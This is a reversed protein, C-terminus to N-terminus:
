PKRALGGNAGVEHFGPRLISGPEPRWESLVLVGPPVLELGEFVVHAFDSTDRQMVDVSDYAKALGEVVGPQAYEATGHSAVLYSGSPLAAMLTRIVRRVDEDGVIFHLVATMILAVPRSFDITELVAPATLIKEPERLDAQIYACRGEPSSTLLARAHALVLPDNDVYVVRAAPSVRQAVQHTNDATPLGSAIDLFQSVGAEGALYQVARGIFARNERAAIRLEPWAALAQDGVERDAAFNDKGGLFYDYVRAVHPRSTDIDAPVPDSEHRASM